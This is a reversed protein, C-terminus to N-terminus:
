NRNNRKPTPRKSGRSNITMKNLEKSLEHLESKKEGSDSISVERSSIPTEERSSYGSSDYKRDNEDNDNKFRVADKEKSYQISPGNDYNSNNSVMTSYAFTERSSSVSNKKPGGGGFDSSKSKINEECFKTLTDDIKEALYFIPSQRFM